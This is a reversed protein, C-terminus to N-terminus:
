LKLSLATPGQFAWGSRDKSSKLKFTALENTTHDKKEGVVYADCGELVAMVRQASPSEIGVRAVLRTAGSTLYCCIKM